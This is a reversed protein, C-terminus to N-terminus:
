SGSTKLKYTKEYSCYGKKNNGPYKYNQTVNVHFIGETFNFDLVKIILEGDTQICRGVSEVFNQILYDKKQQDDTINQGYDYNYMDSMVDASYDIASALANATECDRVNRSIISSHILIIIGMATLLTGATIVTRM